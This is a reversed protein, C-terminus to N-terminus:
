KGSVIKSALPAIAELLREESCKRCRTSASTVVKGNETDTVQVYIVSTEDLVGLSSNIVYKAGVLNGIKVANADSVMGSKQFKQEQIIKKLKMREVFKVKGTKALKDQLENTLISTTKNSRNDKLDVMELMAVNIFKGSKEHQAVSTEKIIGEGDTFEFSNLIDNIADQLKEDGDWQSLYAFTFIYGIGNNVFKYVQTTLKFNQVTMPKSAFFSQKGAVYTYKAIKPDYTGKQAFEELSSQPYKSVVVLGYFDQYTKGEGIEALNIGDGTEGSKVKIKFVGEPVSLKCKYKSSVFTNGEVANDAAQSERVAPVFFSLIIILSFVFIIKASRM